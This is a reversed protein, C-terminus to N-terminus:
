ENTDHNHPPAEQLANGHLAHSRSFSLVLSRSFSLVLSITNDVIVM